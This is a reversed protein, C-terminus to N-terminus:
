VLESKKKVLNLIAADSLPPAAQPDEALSTKILNLLDNNASGSSMAVARQLMEQEKGKNWKGDVKGGFLLDLPPRERVVNWTGAKGVYPIVLRSDNASTRVQLPVLSMVAVAVAVTAVPVRRFKERVLRKAKPKVVTSEGTTVVTDVVEDFSSLNWSRM